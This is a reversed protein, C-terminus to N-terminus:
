PAAPVARANRRRPTRGTGAKARVALHKHWRRFEHGNDAAMDPHTNMPDFHM